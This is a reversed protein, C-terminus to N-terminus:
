NFGARPVRRGVRASKGDSMTSTRNGRILDITQRRAGFGTYCAIAGSNGREVDRYKPTRSGQPM